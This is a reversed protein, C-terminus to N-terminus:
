ELFGRFAIIQIRETCLARGGDVQIAPVPSPMREQLPDRHTGFRPATRAPARLYVAVGDRRAVRDRGAFPTQEGGPVSRATATVGETPRKGVRSVTGRPPSGSGALEDVRAPHFECFRGAIRRSPFTLRGLRPDIGPLSRRRGTRRPSVPQPTTRKKMPCRRTGRSM